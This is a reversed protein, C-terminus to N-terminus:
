KKSAAWEDLQKQKEAIVKDIGSSKLKERLEPLKDAPDFTGSELAKRYQEIVNNLATIENKVPESNFAFGLAKSKIANNNAEATLEWLKPLDSTMTYAISPNPAMWIQIKYAVTTGDIGEPYDITTDSVKVYHKGEIGRVFLNALDKDTYMLDLFMMTREPNTSNNSIAWLGATADTTTAYTNSSIPVAILEKGAAASQVEAGGVKLGDFYSFAKGAKVMETGNVQSTAADKNIYGAKFWSHMKNLYDEYEKSEYINEVKLGNDFGPLVGFRNGLRDYDGYKDSPVSLGVAFPVIGPENEKITKFVQDLDDLGKISTVDIKHKDVLAKDMLISNTGTTYDKYVPVGFTEGKLKASALYEPGIAGKIGAGYQDLLGDLPIIKGAAMDASYGQGFEFMLDLKEGSSSMLNMQQTWAGISIPLIRVTANIKAKTIKSMEEQVLALDPPTAGIIPLALAIEFPDKTAEDLSAGPEQTSSPNSSPSNTAGDEGNNSSSCASILGMLMVAAITLVVFRLNKRM